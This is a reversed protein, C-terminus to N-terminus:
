ILLRKILNEISELVIELYSYKKNTLYMEAANLKKNIVELFVRKIEVNKMRKELIHAFKKKLAELRAKLLKPKYSSGNMILGYINELKEM